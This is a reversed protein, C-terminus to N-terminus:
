IWRTLVGDCDCFDVEQYDAPAEDPREAFKFQWEGGLVRVQPSDGAQGYHASKPDSFPIFWARPELRNVAFNQPDEWKQM